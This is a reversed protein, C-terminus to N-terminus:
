LFYVHFFLFPCRRNEEVHRHDMQGTGNPRVEWMSECPALSDLRTGPWLGSWLPSPGPWPDCLRGTVKGVPVDCAKGGWSPMTKHDSLKAQGARSCLVKDRHVSAVPPATEPHLPPPLSSPSPTKGPELLPLPRLHSSKRIPLDPSGLLKPFCELVQISLESDTM